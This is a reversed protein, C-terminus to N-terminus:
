ARLYFAFVSFSPAKVCYAFALEVRMAFTSHLVFFGILFPNSNNQWNFPTWFVKIFNKADGICNYSNKKGIIYRQFFGKVSCNVSCCIWCCMRMAQLLPSVLTKRLLVPVSRSWCPRGTLKPSHLPLASRIPQRVTVMVGSITPVWTATNVLM